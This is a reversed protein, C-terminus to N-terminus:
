GKKFDSAKKVEIRENGLVDLYIIMIKDGTKAPIRIKYDQKKIEDAFFYDTMNFFEGNYDRDVFVMSLAKKPDEFEIPEKSRQVAEFKKIEIILEEGGMFGTLRDKPKLDSSCVDSSWDCQYIEYATKQKFFFFLLM